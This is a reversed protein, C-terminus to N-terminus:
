YEYVPTGEPIHFAVVRRIKRHLEEVTGDNKIIYDFGDYDDLATESPHNNVPGVGAKELRIMIGRRDKIAKAENVFRVDTVAFDQAHPANMEGFTANVWINPDVLERGCDTGLRQLLGRIEPGFHTEKYGDWGYEGIVQQLRVGPNVYPNLTELFERVKDAFGVSRFGLPELGKAAENKGARAYGSLGVIM